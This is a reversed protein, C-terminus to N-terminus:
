GLIFVPIVTWWHIALGTKIGPYRKYRWAWTHLQWGFLYIQIYRIHIFSIEEKVTAMPCNISIRGQPLCFGKTNLIILASAFIWAMMLCQMSRAQRSYYTTHGRFHEFSGKTNWIHSLKFHFPKAKSINKGMALSCICETSLATTLLMSHVTGRTM